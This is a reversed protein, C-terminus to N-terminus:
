AKAGVVRFGEGRSAAALERDFTVMVVPGRVMERLAIASALHVADYGRLFYAGAVRCADFMRAQTPPIIEFRSFLGWAEALTHDVSGTLRNARGMRHMSACTEAWTHLGTGVVTALNIVTQVQDGGM